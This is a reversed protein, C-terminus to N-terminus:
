RRYRTKSKRFFWLMEENNEAFRRNSDWFMRLRNKFKWEIFRNFKGFLPKQCLNRVFFLRESPPPPSLSKRFFIVPCVRPLYMKPSFIVPSLSKKPFIHTVKLFYSIIPSLSEQVCFYTPKSTKLSPLRRPKKIKESFLIIPGLM